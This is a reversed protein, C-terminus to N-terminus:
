GQPMKDVFAARNKPRSELRGMWACALVICLSGLIFHPTFTEGLFYWGSVCAIVPTLQALLSAMPVSVEKFGHNFFHQGYFSFCGSVAIWAWPAPAAPLGTGPHLSLSAWALPLGVILGGLSLASNITVADDTKRLTKITLVAAGGVMGSFLGVGLGWPSLTGHTPDLVLWLGLSALALLPWFAKAPRQGFFLGGFVNAWLSHTYNLLTGLGAGCLQIALFFSGVALGGFLGRWALGRRNVPRIRHGFLSMLGLLAIAVLFRLVVAAGPDVGARLGQKVLVPVAGFLLYGLLM